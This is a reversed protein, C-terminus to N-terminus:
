AMPPIEANGPLSTAQRKYFLVYGAVAAFVAFLPPLVAANPDSIHIAIVVSIATGIFGCIVSAIAARQSLRKGLLALVAVVILSLQASYAGYLLTPLSASFHFRLYPYVFMGTIAVVITWVKAHALSQRGKARVIDKYLTFSVASIMCHVTSLMITVSALVFLPYLVWPLLYGGHSLEPHALTASFVTLGQSPDVSNALFGGASIAIGLIVGLVWTAPSEFLVRQTGRKLSSLLTDGSGEVSAIRQWTSLDVPMWLANAILLSFVGLLGQARMQTSLPQSLVSSHHGPVLHSVYISVLAVAALGIVPIFLQVDRSAAKWGLRLKGFLLLLLTAILLSTTVAYASKGAYSWISPLLCVVIAIFSAYAIPVQTRETNVEAKYGNWVIYSLGFILFVAGLILQHRETKVLPTYIQITYDVEAMMTGWLGILTAIAALWQLNKSGFAESMYAHMTSGQAHYRLFLPLLKLLLWFGLAWFLPTWLAGLGYLAGWYVFLFVAAMQLAYGVSTNAYDPTSVKQGYIFYDDTTKAHSSPWFGIILYVVIPIATAFIVLANM